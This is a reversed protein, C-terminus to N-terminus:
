AFQLGGTKRNWRGRVIAARRGVPTIRHSEMAESVADDGLAVITRVEGGSQNLAKSLKELNYIQGSVNPRFFVENEHVRYVRGAEAPGGAARGGGFLGPIFQLVGSLGSSVAPVGGMSQTLANIATTNAQTAKTNDTIGANPGRAGLLPNIVMGILGEAGQAQGTIAKELFGKFLEDRIQKAFNTASQRLSKWFEDSSKGIADFIDSAISSLDDAVRLLEQRRQETAQTALQRLRAQHLEAEATEQAQIGALVQALEKENKIRIRAVDAEDKLGAAVRDHRKEERTIEFQLEADWLQHRTLISNRLPELNAEGTEM